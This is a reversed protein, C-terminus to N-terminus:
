KNHWILTRLSNWSDSDRYIYQMSARLSPQVTDTEHRFLWMVLGWVVAAFVPFTQPPADVVQRKVPVKVIAMVVRSFLYLIIQQNISNNDGFVYYGGIVGAIFPHLSAEKGDNMKRQVIMLTKYITAFIGLNLAHQKTARLIGKVKSEVSGTKFLITMVLAHPFRVKAGYVVGNRFGKLVSLAEHFRPDLAIQELRNM